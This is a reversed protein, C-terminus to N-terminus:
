GDVGLYRFQSAADESGTCYGGMSRAKESAESSKEGCLELGICSGVSLEKQAERGWGGLSALGAAVEGIAAKNARVITLLKKEALEKCSNIFDSAQTSKSEPFVVFLYNRSPMPERNGWTVILPGAQGDWGASGFALTAQDPIPGLLSQVTASSPLIKWNGDKKTFDYIHSWHNSFVELKAMKLQEPLADYNLDYCTFAMDVSSEIIPRTRCFLATQVNVCDRTRLQRCVIAFKCNVCDRIFVAGETPGIFIRCNRAGDVTVQACADMLYIDCDQVNDITFAQGNISKPGKVKIEGKLSEFKFDKPDLKPRNPKYGISKSVTPAAPPAPAPAPPPPATKPSEVPSEPAIISFGDINTNDRNKLKREDNVDSAGIARYKSAKTDEKSSCLGM